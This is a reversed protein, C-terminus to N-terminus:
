PTSEPPPASAPPASAPGPVSFGSPQEPPPFDSPWPPSGMGFPDSAPGPSHFAGPPTVQRMQEMMWREIVQESHFGGPPSGWGEHFAGPPSGRELSEWERFQERREREEAIQRRREEAMNWERDTQRHRERDKDSGSSPSPSPPQPPNSDDPSEHQKTPAGDMWTREAMLADSMDQPSHFGGAPSTCEFASGDDPPSGSCGAFALPMAARLAFRVWRLWERRRSARHLNSKMPIRHM